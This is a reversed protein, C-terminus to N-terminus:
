EDLHAFEPEDSPEEWTITQGILKEFSARCDKLSPLVYCRVRKEGDPTTWNRKQNQLLPVLKRLRAGLITEASKHRVGRRDSAEQYDDRVLDTWIYSPWDTLKRTPAGAMLRDLWWSDIPDLSHIKQSLLADTRPVHRLDVSALDFALLDALLAERGGDALEADMEAFYASNQACRGDVDLVCFRREDKGAPVVWDENSTMVVRVFNRLRIPDIGKSEVMQEASTILGKLRGEAQKDGAWVAEDAQLLLCSAMHANFNGTLYRASDVLFYHSPILSGFVEGIKTKGSGQGGRLVLAVGLRERPRQLMHAFFGFVWAYLAEDGGCINNLLHDRFVAYKGGRRPECGWGRWLNFYGPTGGANAPDPNADPHFEVGDFQRRDRAGLWRKAWPVSKVDKASPDYIETWRNLSWQRFADLTLFRIRQEIPADPNERIVVAKSGVLLFAFEANMAEHDYGGPDLEVDLPKGSKKARERKAKQLDLVSTM